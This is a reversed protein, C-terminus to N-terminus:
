FLKLDHSFILKHRLVGRGQPPNTNMLESNHIRRGSPGMFLRLDGHGRHTTAFQAFPHRQVHPHRCYPNTYLLYYNCYRSGTGAIWYLLGTHKTHTYHTVTKAKQIVQHAPVSGETGLEPDGIQQLVGFGEMVWGLREYGKIVYFAGTPREEKGGDVYLLVVRAGRHCDIGRSLKAKNGGCGGVDVDVTM